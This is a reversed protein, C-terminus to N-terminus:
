EDDKVGTWASESGKVAGFWIVCFLPWAGSIVLSVGAGIYATPGSSAKQLEIQEAMQRTADNTDGHDAAWADLAKQQEVQGHLSAYAGFGGVIIGALAYVLFLKRSSYNRKVCGIGAILLLVNLGLGFVVSAVFIADVPPSFPPPPAGDLQGGMASGILSGSAVAAGTGLVGCTLALSAFVISIIGITKPWGPRDDLLEFDNVEDSQVHTDDTM